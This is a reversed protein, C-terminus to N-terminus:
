RSIKTEVAISGSDEWGTVVGLVLLQKGLAEKIGVMWPPHNM